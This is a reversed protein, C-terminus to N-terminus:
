LVGSGTGIDTLCIPHHIYERVAEIMYETEPRPIITHENVTFLLGGYEVYGLIYDLPVKQITCRDYDSQISMIIQEDLVDDYHIILSDRVINTHLCILRELVYKQKYTPNAILSFITM